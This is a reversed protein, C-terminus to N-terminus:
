KAQDDFWSECIMRVHLTRDINDYCFFFLQFAYIFNSWINILMRSLYTQSDFNARSVCSAYEPWSWGPWNIWIIAVEKKGKRRWLGNIAGITRKTDIVQDLIVRDGTETTEKFGIESGWGVGEGRYALTSQKSIVSRSLSLSFAIISVFPFFKFFFPPSFVIFIFYLCM